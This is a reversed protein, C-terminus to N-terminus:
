SSARRGHWTSSRRPIARTLTFPKELLVPKGANLCMIADHKHMPHPTSVYVVDVEPDNALAEYSAHARPVGFQAAFADATKLSRSGVAVLAADDLASLGEAFRKAIFGTGIIGWNITDTM